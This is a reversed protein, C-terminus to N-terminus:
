RGFVRKLFEFFRQFSSLKKEPKALTTTAVKKEPLVVAVKEGPKKYLGKERVVRELYESQSARFLLSELENNKQKLNQLEKKLVFLQQSSLKNQSFLRFNALVLFAIILINLFVLLSALLINELSRKKVRKKKAIM